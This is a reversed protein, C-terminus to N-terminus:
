NKNKMHSEVWHIDYTGDLFKGEKIIDLYFPITTKIGEVVFESLARELRALCSDRSDGFVILKAIM